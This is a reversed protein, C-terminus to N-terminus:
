DEGMYVYEYATKDDNEGFTYNTAAGQWGGPLTFTTGDVTVGGGEWPTFLPVEEKASATIAMLTVAILTFIKKM